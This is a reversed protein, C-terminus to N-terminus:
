KDHAKSQILKQWYDIWLYPSELKNKMTNYLFRLKARDFNKLETWDNVLIIPLNLDDFYQSMTTRKLIPITKLYMAEWTRICDEGNGAPSAVFSYQKLTSLYSLSERWDTYTEALDCQELNKLAVGREQPNTAVSFKYLINLKKPTEIRKLKDFYRPIGHLFYWKNEIGIPLPTVKPHSILCNQAFWHKITDTIFPIHEETINEDGNHSILVYRAKIKPNITTFFEKLKPSQVFLIDNEKVNEPLILSDMDFIHQALGRFTDGSLYPVSSSHLKLQHYIRRKLGNWFRRSKDIIKFM